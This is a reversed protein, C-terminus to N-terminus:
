QNVLRDGFIRQTEHSWLKVFRESSNATDVSSQLMGQFIKSIDRLNFLYHFKSPIPLLESRITRYFDLTSAVLGDAIKKVSENFNYANFFGKLISGYIKKLNSESPEPLCVIM